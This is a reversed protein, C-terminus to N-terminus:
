KVGEGEAERNLMTQPAGKSIEVWIVEGGIERVGEADRYLM